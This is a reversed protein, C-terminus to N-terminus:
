PLISPTVRQSNYRILLPHAILTNRLHTLLFLQGITTSPM